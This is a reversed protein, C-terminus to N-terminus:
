PKIAWPFYGLRRGATMQPHQDRDLQNTIKEAFHFANNIPLVSSRNSETVDHWNYGCKILSSTFNGGLKSEQASEDKDCSYLKITGRECKSISAEYLERYQYQSAASELILRAAISTKEEVKEEIGRCTDLIMLKRPSNPTLESECIEENDNIIVCTQDKTESFYGHGSFAVITYDFSATLNVASELDRKLPHSLISIESYAWAGGALSTFYKYLNNADSKAGPIHELGKVNSAEIIIAHRKM